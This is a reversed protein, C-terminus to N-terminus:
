PALKINNRFILADNGLNVADSGTAMILRMFQLVKSVEVSAANSVYIIDQNKMVVQTALFFGGPDKFNITFVIPIVAFGMVFGYAIQLTLLLLASAFFWYAIQQSKFKM